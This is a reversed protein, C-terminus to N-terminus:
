ETNPKSEQGEIPTNENTLLKKTEPDFKVQWECVMKVLVNGFHKLTIDSLHLVKKRNIIDAEENSFHIDCSGNKKQEFKM